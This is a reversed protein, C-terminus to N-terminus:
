CDQRTSYSVVLCCLAYRSSPLCVTGNDHWSRTVFLSYNRGRPYQPITQRKLEALRQPLPYPNRSFGVAWRWCGMGGGRLSELTLGEHM